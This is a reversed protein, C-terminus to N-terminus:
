KSDEGGGGGGGNGDDGDCGGEDGDGRCVPKRAHVSYKLVWVLVLVLVLKLTPTLSEPKGAKM